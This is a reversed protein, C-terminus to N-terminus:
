KSLNIFSVIVFEEEVGRYNKLKITTRVTDPFKNLKRSDWTDTWDIRLRFEFRIDVVNDLLVSEIGGNEPDDDYYIDERRYLSSLGEYEKDRKLFYGVERIDSQRLEKKPNSLMSFDQYNVTVFNIKGSYYPAQGNEGLFFAAKNNKDFYACSLDREIRNITLNVNEYFEAVGTLDNIASMISTHSAYLMLLILSSLAMTVLVEILSFGSNSSINGTYKRIKM